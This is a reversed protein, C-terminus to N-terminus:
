HWARFKYQVNYCWGTLLSIFSPCGDVVAVVAGAGGRSLLHLPPPQGTWDNNSRRIVPFSVSIADKAYRIMFYTNIQCCLYATTQRGAQRDGQHTEGNNMRCTAKDEVSVQKPRVSESLADM